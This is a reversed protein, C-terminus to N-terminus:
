SAEDISTTTEPSTTTTTVSWRDGPAYPHGVVTISPISPVPMLAWQVECERNSAVPAGHGSVDYNTGIPGGLDGLGWATGHGGTEASFGVRVADYDGDYGDVMFGDNAPDDPDPIEIRYVAGYITHSEPGTPDGLYAGASIERGTEENRWVIRLNVQGFCVPVDVDVSVAFALECYGDPGAPDDWDPNPYCSADAASVVAPASAAVLM